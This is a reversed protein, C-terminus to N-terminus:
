RLGSELQEKDSSVFNCRAISVLFPNQLGRHRPARLYMQSLQQYSNLPYFLIGRDLNRPGNYGDSSILNDTLIAGKTLVNAISAILGFALLLVGISSALELIYLIETDLKEITTFQKM